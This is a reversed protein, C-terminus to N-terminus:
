HAKNAKEKGTIAICDTERRERETNKYNLGRQSKEFKGIGGTTEGNRNGIDKPASINVRM